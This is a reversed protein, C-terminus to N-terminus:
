VRSSCSLVCINKPVTYHLLELYTHPLHATHHGALHSQQSLRGEPDYDGCRLFALTYVPYDRIGEARFNQSESQQNNDDSNKMAMKIMSVLGSTSCSPLARSGLLSHWGAEAHFSNWVLPEPHFSSSQGQTKAIPELM